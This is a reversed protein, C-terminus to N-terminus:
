VILDLDQNIVPFQLEKGTVNVVHEQIMAVQIVVLELVDMVLTIVSCADHCTLWGGARLCNHCGCDVSCSGRVWGSNDADPDSPDCCYEDAWAYRYCDDAPINNKCWGFKTECPSMEENSRWAWGYGEVYNCYKTIGEVECTCPSNRNCTSCTPTTTTTSITTTFITTSSSTLITSTVLTTTSSSTTSSSTLITSTVLTTTSSTVVTTTSTKTIKVFQATLSYSHESDFGKYANVRIYYKGTRIPNYIIKENRNGLNRSIDVLSRNSDYLYLDYDTGSPIDTLKITITDKDVVIYYYDDTDEESWIYSKYKIKPILPGYAQEPINNPEYTDTSRFFLNLINQWINQLANLPNFAYVSIPSFSVALILILTFVIINQSIKVNNIRV